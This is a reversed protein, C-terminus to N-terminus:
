PNDQTEEANETDEATDQEIAVIERRNHNKLVRVTSLESFNTTLQIKLSYLDDKSKENRGIVTGVILGPPFTSSYGSTVITDGKAFKAHRPLEELYAISPDGDRWTLSGFYDTDKLKCSLKFKSNLMSIARSAHKGVVNVIGIVGNKDVIGMEPEIGDASGKNITIYNDKRSISNNIVRAMVFSFDSQVDGCVNVSDSAHLQLQYESMQQRLAVLEMELLANREQLDENIGKLHFYSTVSNVGGYVWAVFSNASTFFVHHQYSNHQSLLACSFVFYILFIIWAIHRVIFSILNQM